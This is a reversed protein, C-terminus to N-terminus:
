SILKRIQRKQFWNPKKMRLSKVEESDIVKEIAELIRKSSSGDTYPHLENRYKERQNHYENRNKLSRHITSGLKKPDNIDIGKEKRTAAKFTIIPRDLLLYEYAVSSTDTILLDSTEMSPHIDNDDVIKLQECALENYKEIWKQDMLPHFKILWRFNEIQILKRIEPFLAKASTYRPSFTPAYLIVNDMKTFGLETKRHSQNEAHLNDMKSWGTEKVLFTHHKQALINFKATLYPGPTCYLDFFNTIRYHGRKEEGLGHFIQVKLGPWFDPVVNGPVIVADPNFADVERSTQISKDPTIIEKASATTFWKVIHGSMEAANEM